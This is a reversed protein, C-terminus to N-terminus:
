YILPVCCRPTLGGGEVAELVHNNSNGSKSCGLGNTKSASQAWISRVTEGTRDYKRKKRTTGAGETQVLDETAAYLLKFVM